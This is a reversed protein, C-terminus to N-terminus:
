LKIFNNNKMDNKSIEDRFNTNKSIKASNM